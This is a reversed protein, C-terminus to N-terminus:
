AMPRSRGASRQGYMLKMWRRKIKSAIEANAGSGTHAELLQQNEEDAKNQLDAALEATWPFFLIAIILTAALSRVVFALESEDVSYPRGQRSMRTLLFGPMLFFILLM